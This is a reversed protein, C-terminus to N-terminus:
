KFYLCPKCFFLFDLTEFLNYFSFGFLHLRYIFNKWCISFPPFNNFFYFKSFNQIAFAFFLDLIWVWFFFFFFFFLFIMVYIRTKLRSRERPLPQFTGHQRRDTAQSTKDAFCPVFEGIGNGVLEVRILFECVMSTKVILLWVRKIGKKWIRM